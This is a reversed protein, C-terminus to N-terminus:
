SARRLRAGGFICLSIGVLAVIAILIGVTNMSRMQLTRAAVADALEVSGQQRLVTEAGDLLQALRQEDLNDISRESSSLIEQVTAASEPTLLEDLAANSRGEPHGDRRWIGTRRAGHGDEVTIQLFSRETLEVLLTPPTRNRRRGKLGFGSRNGDQRILVRPYTNEAFSVDLGEAQYVLYPQETGDPAREFGVVVSQTTPIRVWLMLALIATFFVVLVATGARTCLLRMWLSPRPVLDTGQEDM